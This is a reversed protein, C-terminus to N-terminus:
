YGENNWEINYDPYKTKLVKCTTFHDARGFGQSYGYVLIHKRAASHKIRGGGVCKTRLKSVKVFKEEFEEYIDAHYEGRTNGRVIYTVNEDGDINSPAGEVRILVYKFTGEDIEVAAVSPAKSAM